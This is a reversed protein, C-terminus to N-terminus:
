KATEGAGAYGPRMAEGEHGWPPEGLVLLTEEDNTASVAHGDEIGPRNEVLRSAISMMRDSMESPGEIANAAIGRRRSDTM